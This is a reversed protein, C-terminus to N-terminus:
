DLVELDQACSLCYPVWPLAELRGEAIKRGCRVCKGYQGVQMRQLASDVSQLQDSARRVLAADVEQTYTSSADDAVEDDGSQPMTEQLSHPSTKLETDVWELQKRLRDREQLLLGKFHELNPM